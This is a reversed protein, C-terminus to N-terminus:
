GLHETLRKCGFVLWFPIVICIAYAWVMSMPSNLDTAGALTNNVSVIM